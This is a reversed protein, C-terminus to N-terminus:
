IGSCFFLVPEVVSEVLKTYVFLSIGGVCLFKSYIASLARSASKTIEKVSLKMDLFENM